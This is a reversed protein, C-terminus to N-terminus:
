DKLRVFHEKYFKTFRWHLWHMGVTHNSNSENILTLYTRTTANDWSEYIEGEIFPYRLPSSKKHWTPENKKYWPMEVTKICRFKM